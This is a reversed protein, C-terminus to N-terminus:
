SIIDASSGGDVLIRHVKVNAIKLTIVLADNHPHLLHTAEDESFEITVSRNTTYAHYVENQERSPRAERVDAKRKRASEREIPGGMITRIERAPSKESEGNQTAKPEEVYEQLYGRRILGEVEEKLDFYDQTAHNHDRHFLCYRGKSRKTSPVKMREPWKLLRQDKIEMLVQELPVTTPTYKEFKRPPDKQSSRDRKEWRSGQPKDGSRERKQDTRKGDPERKSYFFEGASMYRQARSLTESFTSPTKKGFSFSLHEDRVGSMFALLSVVDTLSEIQLKEKNFRAVYDHLSETTRQKITLLYAVPRSRCRGGVFQTVFARALSKFSSISGRKITSVMNQGVLKIYDLIGPVQGSGVSRLYGDM